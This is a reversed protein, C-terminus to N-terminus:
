FVETLTGTARWLEMRALIGDVEARLFDLEARNVDQHFRVLLDTTSRGQEFNREEAKLKNRQLTLLRRRAQVRARRFDWHSWADKIERLASQQVHELEQRM